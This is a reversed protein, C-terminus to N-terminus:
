NLSSKLPDDPDPASPLEYKVTVSAWTPVDVQCAANSWLMDIMKSRAMPPPYGFPTQPQVVGALLVAEPPVLLDIDWSHKVGLTGYALQALSVGKVFLAAVGEEELLHQIRASESTFRFNRLTDELARDRLKAATKVPVAVAARSLGDHVLGAVRQRNVVRM